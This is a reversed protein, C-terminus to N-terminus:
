SGPLQQLQSSLSSEGGQGEGTGSDSANRSEFEVRASQKDGVGGGGGGGGGESLSLTNLRPPSLARHRHSSAIIEPLCEPRALWERRHNISGTILVLWDSQM